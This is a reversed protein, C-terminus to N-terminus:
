ISVLTAYVIHERIFSWAASGERAERRPEQGAPQPSPPMPATGTMETGEERPTKRLEVFSLDAGRGAPCGAAPSRRHQRVVQPEAGDASRAQARRPVGFGWQGPRALLEVRSRDCSGDVRVRFVFARDRERGRIAYSIALKSLLRHIVLRK